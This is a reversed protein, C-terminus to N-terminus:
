SNRQQNMRSEIVERMRDEIYNATANSLSASQVLNYPLQLSRYYDLNFDKCVSKVKNLMAFKDMMSGGAQDWEANDVHVQKFVTNWLETSENIAKDLWNFLGLAGILDSESLEEKFSRFDETDSDFPKKTHSEFCALAIMDIMLDGVEKDGPTSFLLQLEVMAGFAINDIAEPRIIKYNPDEEVKKPDLNQIVAAELILQRSIKMFYLTHYWRLKKVGLHEILIDKLDVGKSIANLHKLKM